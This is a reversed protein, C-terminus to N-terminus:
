HQVVRFGQHRLLEVIGDTGILHLAGVVVLYDESGGILRVIQPLWKQNRETLMKRKMASAGDLEAGALRALAETDGNRWADVMADLDSGTQPGRSLFRLVFTRQEDISMESFIRFQDEITELGIIRKMDAQARKALQMDVGVDSAFGLNMLEVQELQMAAFWPQFHSMFAPDLGVLEARSRFKEYVDTGLARELSQGAPLTGLNVASNLVQDLRIQGLDVEMVLAKADRYARVAEEPLDSDSLKLVHVAGLLYVTNVDSKVVWFTHHQNDASAFFSSVLLAIAVMAKLLRLGRRSQGTPM